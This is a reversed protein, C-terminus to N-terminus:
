FKAVTLHFFCLGRLATSTANCCASSEGVLWGAFGSEARVVAAGIVSLVLRQPRAVAPAADPRGSDSPAPWAQSRGGSPTQRNEWARAGAQPQTPQPGAM